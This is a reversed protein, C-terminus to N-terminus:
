RPQAPFNKESVELPHRPLLENKVYPLDKQLLDHIELPGSASLETVHISDKLLSGLGRANM